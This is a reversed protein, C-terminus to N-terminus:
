AHVIQRDFRRLLALAVCLLVSVVLYQLKFHAFLQVGYFDIPIATVVSFVITVIAAAQLMGVLSVRM